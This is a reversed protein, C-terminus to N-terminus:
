CPTECLDGKATLLAASTISKQRRKRGFPWPCGISEAQLQARSYVTPSGDPFSIAPRTVLCRQLTAPVEARHQHGSPEVVDGPAGVCQLLQQLRAVRVASPISWSTGSRAKSRRARTMARHTSGAGGKKTGKVSQSDIIAATPSAEHGAQERCLMYFAHDICELTRDEHWRRLYDNVMSQPPLDKPLAAWQCGASLIYMVGNVVAREDVTRKNGGPKTAPILPGILSCEEDTLDSPYRLKSRDYRARNEQM